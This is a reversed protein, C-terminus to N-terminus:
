PNVTVYVSDSPQGYIRNNKYLIVRLQIQEPEGPTTPTITVDASKGTATKISQWTEAGKRRMQLEWMVAEGRESVIAAVTYGIAAAIATLTPKVADPSIPSSKPSEYGMAEGIQMTYNASAKARTRRSQYRSLAGNMAGPFPLRSLTFSANPSIPDKPDGDFIGRQQQTTSEKDATAIRANGTATQLNALDQENETEDQATLGLSDAYNPMGSQEVTLANILESVTRINM